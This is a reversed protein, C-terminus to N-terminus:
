RAGDSSESDDRSARARVRAWVSRAKEARETDVLAAAHEVAAEVLHAPAGVNLAGRLHSFLPDPAGLGIMGAAIALERDVLPLGPRGLVKGYAESVIWRELDPHIGRLRDRFDEYATGFVERCLRVGREAWADLDDTTPPAPPRESLARWSALANLTRPYGVFVYSQLLVEELEPGVGERLAEELAAEVGDENGAGLHVSATLLVRLRDTLVM